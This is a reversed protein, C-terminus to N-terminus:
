RRPQSQARRRYREEERDNAQRMTIIRRRPPRLTWAVGVLEGDYMGVTIYRAEGYDVRNDEVTMHLGDFVQEAFALDLNQRALVELRKGENYEVEM